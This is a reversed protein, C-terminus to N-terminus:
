APWPAGEAWLWYFDAGSVNRIARAGDPAVRVATGEELPILDGDVVMEGKGGLCLYLEEHRAHKHLFPLAAGPKYKNLSVELGTLGLPKKLFVKGRAKIGERRPHVWQHQDLAAFPGFSAVAYNKVNTTM